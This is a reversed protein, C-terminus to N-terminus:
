FVNISWNPKDTKIPKLKRKSKVGFTKEYDRQRLQKQRNSIRSPHWRGRAM